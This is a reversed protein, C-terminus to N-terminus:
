YVITKPKWLFTTLQPHTKSTDLAIATYSYPGPNPTTSYLCRLYYLTGASANLTPVICYDFENMSNLGWAVGSAYNSEIYIKKTSADSLLNSTVTNGQTGAGDYWNFHNGSGMDTFNVDDTSYQMKLASTNGSSATGKLTVRVRIVQTAGNLIPATNEAALPLVPEAADDCYIRWNESKPILVAMKKSWQHHVLELV